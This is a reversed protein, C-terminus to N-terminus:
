LWKFVGDGGEWFLVVTYDLAGDESATITDVGDPHLHPIDAQRVDGPWIRIRTLTPKQSV